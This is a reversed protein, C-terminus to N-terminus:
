NIAAYHKAYAIANHQQQMVTSRSKDGDESLDSLDTKHLGLNALLM